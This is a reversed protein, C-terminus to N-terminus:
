SYEDGSYAILEGTVAELAGGLKPTGTVIVSSENARALVIYNHPNVPEERSSGKSRERWVGRSWSRCLDFLRGRLYRVDQVSSQYQLRSPVQRYEMIIGTHDALARPISM